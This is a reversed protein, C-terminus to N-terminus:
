KLDAIIIEDIIYDILRFELINDDNDDCKKIFKEYPEVEDGYHKAIEPLIKIINSHGFSNFLETVKNKDMDYLIYLGSWEETKINGNKYDDSDKFKIFDNRIVDKIDMIQTTM